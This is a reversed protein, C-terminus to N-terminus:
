IDHKAIEMELSTGEHAVQGTCHELRSREVKYWTLVNGGSCSREEDLGGGEGLLVSTGVLAWQKWCDGVQWAKCAPGAGEKDKPGKPKSDPDM